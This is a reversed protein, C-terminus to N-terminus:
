GGGAHLLRRSILRRWRPFPPTINAAELTSFAAYLYNAGCSTPYRERQVVMGRRKARSQAVVAMVMTRVPQVDTDAVLGVGVGLALAECDALSVGVGVSVGDGDADGLGVGVEDPISGAKTGASPDIWITPGRRPQATPECAMKLVASPAWQVLCYADVSSNTPTSKM